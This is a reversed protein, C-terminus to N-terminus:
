LLYTRLLQQLRIVHLLLGLHDVLLLARSGFGESYGISDSAKSKM